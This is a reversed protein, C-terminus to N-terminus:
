QSSGKRELRVVTAKYQQELFKDIAEWAEKETHCQVRYARSATVEFVKTFPNMYLSRGKCMPIYVNGFPYYDVYCGNDNDHVSVEVGPESRKFLSRIYKLLM